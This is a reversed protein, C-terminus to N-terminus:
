PEYTTANLRDIEAAILAGAIILREKYPKNTMKDWIAQDWAFPLLDTGWYGGVDHVCLKAAADSLQGETNWTADQEITREHKEIQEKREQAILEIGTKM